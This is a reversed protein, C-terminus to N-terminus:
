PTLSGSQIALEMYKEIRARKAAVITATPALESRDRGSDEALMILAGYLDHFEAVMRQWNDLPLEQGPQVERLGFRLAKCARQSVETGEEAVCSLIHEIRDM